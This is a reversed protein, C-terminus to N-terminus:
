GNSTEFRLDEAVVHQSFVSIWQWIYVIVLAVYVLLTLLQGSLTLKAMLFAEM